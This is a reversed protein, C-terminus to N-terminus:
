DKKYNKPVSFPFSLTENFEYSKFDLKIDLKGKEAVTIRRKTSFEVGKKNEYDTYSLNCTRSRTIDMDDLKSNDIKYNSNLTLLGKFWDGLSLLSIKDGAKSYSIVNSDVFVPNGILIEQLSHLDLPLKTMEQLYAVSRATYVKDQKNLVKVSDKTIYARLGEIGFIATISIWIASDKYMRLNANVDYKKGDAGQYDVNIKASFTNFSIEAAKMGALSQRIFALTDEKSNDVVPKVVTVTDRKAIVTQIKRTSRCSAMLAIVAVLFLTIRM